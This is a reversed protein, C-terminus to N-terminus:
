LFSPLTNVVALNINVAAAFEYLGSSDRKAIDAGVSVIAVPGSVADKNESFNFVIETLGGVVGNALRGFEGAALQLEFERVSGDERALSVSHRVPEHPAESAPTMQSAVRREALKALM